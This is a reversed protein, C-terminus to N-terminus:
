DCIVKLASKLDRSDYETFLGEVLKGNEFKFSDKLDSGDILKVGDIFTKVVRAIM